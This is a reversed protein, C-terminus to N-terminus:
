SQKPRPYAIVEIKAVEKQSLVPMRSIEMINKLRKCEFLTENAM